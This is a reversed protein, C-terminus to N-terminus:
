GGLLDMLKRIEADDTMCTIIEEIIRRCIRAPEARNRDLFHRSMTIFLLAMDSFSEITHPSDIGEASLISGLADVVTEWEGGRALALIGAMQYEIKAPDLNRAEILSEVADMMNGSELIAMGYLYLCRASGRRDMAEKTNGMFPELIGRVEGYNGEAFRGEARALALEPSDPLREAAKDLISTLRGSRGSTAYLTSIKALFRPDEMETKELWSAALDLEGQKLFYLTGKLATKPDSVSDIAKEAAVKKRLDRKGRDTNSHSIQFLEIRSVELGSNEVSKNVTEFASGEFFIAEWNPFLRIQYSAHETKPLNLMVSMEKEREAPEVRVLFAINREPPLIWKSLAFQIRNKTHIFEDADLVLIYDGTAQRVALNRAKSFDDKWPTEILRADFARVIQRTRDESGTDVVIIEDAIGQVSSLAKEICEEEDKAIMCISLKQLKWDKGTIRQLLLQDFENFYGMSQAEKLSALAKEREGHLLYVKGLLSLSEPLNRSPSLSIYKRLFSAAKELDFLYAHIIGAIRYPEPTDFGGWKREWATFFDRAEECRGAEVLAHLMMGYMKEGGFGMSLGRYYRALDNGTLVSYVLFDDGLEKLYDDAGPNHVMEGRLYQMDREFETTSEHKDSDDGLCPQIRIGPLIRGDHRVPCENSSGTMIRFVDLFYRSRVLRLEIKSVCASKSIRTYQQNIKLLQFDELVEAKIATNVILGFGEGSRLLSDLALNSGLCAKEDSKLFLVWESNLPGKLMEPDNLDDVSVIRIGEKEAIRVSDDTSGLDFYMVDTSLQLSSHICEGLFESDNKGVICISLLEPM